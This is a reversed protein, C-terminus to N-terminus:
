PRPAFQLTQWYAQDTAYPDIPADAALDKPLVGFLQMERIYYRNPRFGPMDFRKKLHMQRSADEIRSLIALYDKDKKDEFVPQGCIELGGESKALPARLFLSHAPRDLNCM